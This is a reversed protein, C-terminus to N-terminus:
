EDTEFKTLTTYSGIGVSRMELVAGTADDIVVSLPYPKHPPPELVFEWGPRGDIEVPSGDGRPTSFDNPNSLNEAVDRGGLM